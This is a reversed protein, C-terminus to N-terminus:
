VFRVTKPILITKRETKMAAYLQYDNGQGNSDSGKRQLTSLYLFNMIKNVINSFLLRLLKNICFVRDNMNSIQFFDCNM